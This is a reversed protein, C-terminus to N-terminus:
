RVSEREPGLVSRASFLSLVSLVGASEPAEFPDDPPEDDGVGAEDDEADDVADEEEPDDPEDDPLAAQVM